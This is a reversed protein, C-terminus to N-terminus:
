PKAWYETIGPNEEAMEVRNRGQQKARYLAEDAAKILDDITQPETYCAVGFSITLALVKKENPFDTQAIQLRIKEAVIGGGELDTDPLM